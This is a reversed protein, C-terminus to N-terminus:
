NNIDSGDDWLDFKDDKHLKLQVQKSGAPLGTLFLKKVDDIMENTSLSGFNYMISGGAEEEIATSVHQMANLACEEIVDEKHNSYIIFEMMCDAHTCEKPPDCM